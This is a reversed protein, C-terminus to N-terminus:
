FLVGSGILAVHMGKAEEWGTSIIFAAATDLYIWTPTAMTTLRLSQFVAAWVKTQWMLMLAYISILGRFSRQRWLPRDSAAGVPEERLKLGILSSSELASSKGRSRRMKRKMKRKQHWSRTLVGQQLKSLIHFIKCFWGILIKEEEVCQDRRWRPRCNRWENLNQEKKAIVASHGTVEWLDVLSDARQPCLFM